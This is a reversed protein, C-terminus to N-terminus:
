NRRGGSGCCRDFVRGSWFALMEVLVRVVL